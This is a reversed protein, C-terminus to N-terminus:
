AAEKKGKTGDPRAAKVTETGRGIRGAGTTDAKQLLGPSNGFNKLIRERLELNLV